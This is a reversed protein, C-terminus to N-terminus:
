IVSSDWKKKQDKKLSKIEKNIEETKAPDSKIYELAREFHYLANKHDGKARYYKALNYSALGIKGEKGYLIGLNYFTDTYNKDLALVRNFLKIAEASYGLEQDVRGLYYLTEAFDPRMVVSQSLCEKARDYQNLNFYTRGLSSLIAPDAPDIKVAKKLEELAEENKGTRAYVLGLGLYAMKDMPNQKIRNMFRREALQADLYESEVRTKIDQFTSEHAKQKTLQVPYSKSKIYNSLYIMRDQTDPHTLLYTPVNSSGLWKTEHGMRKMMEPMAASNYGAATMFTLGMFDAEEEDARSYMLQTQVNAAMSGVMLAGAVPGGILLGALMGIASAINVKTSKEIRKAIHREVVHGLEHAIVSALQSENESLLIIGTFIFVYGGPAAFANLGPDDIVYFQVEFPPNEVTSVLNQGIKEVYNSVAQDNVFKVQEKVKLFFEKGLEKEEKPSMMAWSPQAWGAVILCVVLCTVVVMVSTHSHVQKQFGNGSEPDTRKM